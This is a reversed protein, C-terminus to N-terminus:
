LKYLALISHIGLSITGSSWPESARLGWPRYRIQDVALFGHIGMNRSVMLNLACKRQSALRLVLLRFEVLALISHIGLGLRVTTIKFMFPLTLKWARPQYNIRLSLINM